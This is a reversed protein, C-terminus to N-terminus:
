LCSYVTAILGQARPDGVLNPYMRNMVYGIGLGAQPAACGCSGGYGSHGFADPDPGYIVRASNRVFGSGWDVPVGLVLDDGFIRRASAASITAASLLRVGDVAGGAALASYVRAIGRASAQGGAAAIEAARWARQNSIEPPPAPNTFTLRQIDNFSSPLSAKGSRKPGIMEAARHDEAEPLGIHVDAALPEAVEERFFTGVTRGDIRRVLEGVLPGFTLAHYGSASGPPFLTEQSLLRANILDNDCFDLAETAAVPASLGAQHSLLMGVTTGDRGSGAFEPWYRAVPAEYDLLGRDALMACCLAAMGKTTSWVCGLTDAAWPRTAARDAHGGWLDVLVEEGRYVAFAAGIEQGADFNAQFAERVPEFGAAVSGHVTTTM